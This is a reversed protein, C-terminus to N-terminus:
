NKIKLFMIGSSSKKNIKVSKITKYKNINMSFKKISPVKVNKNNKEYWIKFHEYLEVSKIHTDSEETCENIFKLYLDIKPKCESTWEIVNDTMNVISNEYKRYYELLLLMFDKKWIGINNSSYINPENNKLMNSFKICRIRDSCNTDMSIIKPFENCDYTTHFNPIFDVSINHKNKLQISQNGTIFKIFKNDLGNNDCSDFSVVYRKKQYMLLGPDQSLTNPPADYFFDKNIQGYYEGFTEKILNNFIQRCNDDIWEFIMFQQSSNGCIARSLYILLYKLDDNNPQLFSLFQSLENNIKHSQDYDYGVTLSIMDHSNGSRFIHNKLDYVGNNFGLLYKDSDLKRVFDVDTIDSFKDRLQTMMNNKTKVMEMSKEFKQLKYKNDINNMHYYTSVTECIEKIKKMADNMLKNNKCGIYIWTNGNFRFWENECVRYDNHFFYYVLEVKSFINENLASYVLSNLKSDDFIWHENEILERKNIKEKSEFHIKNNLQFHIKNKSELNIKDKSELNIKDKSEFHIIDIEDKTLRLPVQPYSEGICDYHRCKIDITNEGIDLYMPSKVMDTHEINKFICVTDRICVYTRKKRIVNDYDIDILPFKKTILKFMKCENEYFLLQEPNDEKAWECLSNMNFKIDNFGLKTWIKESVNKKYKNHKKIWEIWLNIGYGGTLKYICEAVNSYDISNDSRDYSLINLLNKVNRETNDIDFGISWSGGYKQKIVEWNLGNIRMFVDMNKRGMSNNCTQCIPILNDKHIYGGNYRSIIHGCHFEGKNIETNNCCPCLIIGTNKGFRTDWVINRMTKSIQKQEAEM